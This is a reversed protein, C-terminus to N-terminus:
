SSRTVGLRAHGAVIGVAKAEIVHRERELPQARGSVPIGLPSPEANACRRLRVPEDVRDASAVHARCGHEHSQRRAYAEDPDDTEKAVSAGYKAAVESVPYRM